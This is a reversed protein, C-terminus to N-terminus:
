VSKLDKCCPIYHTTCDIYIALSKWNYGTISDDSGDGGSVDAIFSGSATCYDFTFLNTIAYNASDSAQRIHIASDVTSVVSNYM